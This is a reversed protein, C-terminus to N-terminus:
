FLFGAYMIYLIIIPLAFVLLVDIIKIIFEEISDIGLPNKLRTSDGGSVSTNNANDNVSTNNANDSVSALMDDEVALVSALPFILGLCFSLVLIGIYIDKKFFTIM